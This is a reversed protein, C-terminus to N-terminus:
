ALFEAALLEPGRAQLPPGLFAVERRFGDVVVLAPLGQL